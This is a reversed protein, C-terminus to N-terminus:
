SHLVGDFDLYLILCREKRLRGLAHRGPSTMPKRVRLSYNKESHNRFHYSPRKSKSGGRVPPPMRVTGGNYLM